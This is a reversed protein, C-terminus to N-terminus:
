AFAGGVLLALSVLWSSRMDARTDRVGGTAGSDLTVSPISPVATYGDIGSATTTTTTTANGGKARATATSSITRSGGVIIGQEDASVAVEDITAAAGGVATTKGDVTFLGTNGVVGKATVASGGIATVKEVSRTPFSFTKSGVVAGGSVASAVAGGSLTAAKGGVTVTSGDAVVVSGGATSAPSATYTRADATVAGQCYEAGVM